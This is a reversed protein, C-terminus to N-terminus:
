AMHRRRLTLRQVYALGLEVLLALLAVPVAGVLLIHSYRSGLTLGATIFDGLGGGGILSALTASSIVEIAAIRFGALIVPLALPLQVKALLGPATMGMGRGADVIAPSVGSMGAETNILIPPIALITLAVLSPVFGTHLIPILLFLVALSPVVRIIGSMNVVIQSLAKNRSIIIGLPLGVLAGILLAFFSLRLHVSLAGVFNNTPDLAYQIAKGITEM